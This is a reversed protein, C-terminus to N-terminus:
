LRQFFSLPCLFYEEKGRKKFAIYINGEDSQLLEHKEIAWTGGVQDLLYIIGGENGQVFYGVPPYVEM